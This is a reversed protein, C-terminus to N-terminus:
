VSFRRTPVTQIVSLLSVGNPGETDAATEARSNFPQKLWGVKNGVQMVQDTAKTITEHVAEMVVNIVMAILSLGVLIYAGAAIFFKPHSPLVDGFGITALSTFTFYFAELYTWDEWRTYLFAGFFIYVFAIILAIVPPLNFNDDVDYSVYMEEIESKSLRNRRRALRLRLKEGPSLKRLGSRMRARFCSGTYYFRRVFTWLYKILRTLSKGVKSLVVLCLPIGFAAYIMTVVRGMRTIPAINGYGVTTYVTGCYFLAGFWTWQKKPERFDFTVNEGSSVTSLPFVDYRSLLRYLDGTVDKDSNRGAFQTLNLVAAEFERRGAAYQTKQDGFAALEDDEASGEIAVFVAAGILSYFVLLVVLGVESMILHVVRRLLKKLRRICSPRRQETAAEDDPEELPSLPRAVVDPAPLRRGASLKKPPSVDTAHTARSGPTEGFTVSKKDEGDVFTPSKEATSM